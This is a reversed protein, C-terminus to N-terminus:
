PLEGSSLLFEGPQTSKRNPAKMINKKFEKRFLAAAKKEEVPFRSERDKFSLDLRNLTDHEVIEANWGGEVAPAKYKSCITEYSPRSHPFNRMARMSSRQTKAYTRALQQAQAENGIKLYLDLEQEFAQQQSKKATIAHKKCQKDLSTLRARIHWTYFVMAETTKIQEPHRWTELLIM